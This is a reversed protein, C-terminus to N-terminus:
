SVRPDFCVINGNQDFGLNDSRYCDQFMYNGIDNYYDEVKECLEVKGPYLDPNEKQLQIEEEAEDPYDILFATYDDLPKVLEKLIYYAVYEGEINQSLKILRGDKGIGGVEYIEAFPGYNGKIQMAAEIEQKDITLKLVKDGSIKYAVGWMGEGIVKEVPFKKLISKVMNENFNQDLHRGGQDEPIWDLPLAFSTKYIKM